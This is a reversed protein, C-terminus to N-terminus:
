LLRAIGTSTRLGPVCTSWNGPLEFPTKAFYKAIPLLGEEHMDLRRIQAAFAHLLAGTRWPLNTQPTHYDTM